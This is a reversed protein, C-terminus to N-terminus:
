KEGANASALIVIAGEDIKYNLKLQDLLKAFSIQTAKVTFRPLKDLHQKAIGSIVPIGTNDPDYHKGSRNLYRIVTYINANELEVSPFVIKGMKQRVMDASAAPAATPATGATVPKAADNAASATLAMALCCVIIVNKM